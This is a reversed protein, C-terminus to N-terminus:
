ELAVQSAVHQLGPSGPGSYCTGDSQGAFLMKKTVLGIEAQGWSGGRGGGAWHACRVMCPGWVGREQGTM